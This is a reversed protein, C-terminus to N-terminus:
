AQNGGAAPSEAVWSRLDSDAYRVASGFHRFKPGFGTMRWRRLTKVSLGLNEAVEFDKWFREQGNVNKSNMSV